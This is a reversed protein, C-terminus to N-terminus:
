KYTWETLIKEFQNYNEDYNKETLLSLARQTAFRHSEIRVNHLLLLERDKTDKTSFFLQKIIRYLKSILRTNKCTTMAYAKYYCEHRTKYLYISQQNSIDSYNDKLLTNLKDLYANFSEDNIIELCNNIKKHTIIEYDIKGNDLKLLVSYSTDARKKFGGWDFYFNGLSYFILSNNYKEWGQPVHPHHGIIVDVGLDCLERYRTRWEPLPLPVEEEGAHAILILVDVKQKSKRVINNVSPHNIWAYGGHGEDELLAGFEAECFSLFGIKIDDIKKIMLEYAEDFSLGAGIYDLGHKTIESLTDKLGTEGYDYIHNNALSLIDFGCNKITNIASKSQDVHPGAKPIPHGNSKIPAEFNCLSIDSSIIIKKLEDSIIHNGNSGIVIDGCALIEIM